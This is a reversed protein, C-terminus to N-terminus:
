LSKYHFHVQACPSSFLFLRVLALRSLLKSTVLSRGMKDAISNTHSKWIRMTQGLLCEDCSWDVKLAILATFVISILICLEKSELLWSLSSYIVHGNIFSSSHHLESKWARFLLWMSWITLGFLGKGWSGISWRSGCTGAWLVGLHHPPCPCHCPAHHM